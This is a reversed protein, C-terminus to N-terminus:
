EGQEEEKIKVLSMSFNSGLKEKSRSIPIIVKAGSMIASSSGRAASTMKPINPDFLAQKLVNWRSKDANAARFRSYTPRVYIFVNFFGQLPMLMANMVLLPYIRGQDDEEFAFSGDLVQIVFVPTATLLFSVVYLLGQTAAEKTLQRQVMALSVFDETEVVSLHSLDIDINTDIVIDNCEDDEDDSTTTFYKSQLPATLLSKRLYAYIVINNIILSLYTVLVPIGAYVYSVLEANDGFRVWCTMTLAQEGYWRAYYGTVSTIPFFLIGSLHMWLEYKRCFVQRKVRFRVTLLYYFSLICNYWIAWICSLQMLFGLGQCTTENGFAWIRQSTEAPLLFPGIVYTISSVIDCSSLGLIIRDYPTTTKTTCLNRLIKFVITSSGILSLGAACLQLIILTKQEQDSLDSMETEGM